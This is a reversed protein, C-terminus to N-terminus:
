IRDGENKKAISEKDMFKKFKKALPYFMRVVFGLTFAVILAFWDM